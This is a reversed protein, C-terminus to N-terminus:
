APRRRVFAVFSGLFHGAAVFWIAALLGTVSSIAQAYLGFAMRFSCALLTIEDDVGHDPHLIPVALLMWLLSPIAVLWFVGAFWFATSNRDAPRLDDLEGVLRQPRSKLTHEPLLLGFLLNAPALLWGLALIVEAVQPFDCRAVFSAASPVAAVIPATVTQLLPLQDLIDAPLAQALGWVVFVQRWLWTRQARPWRSRARARLRELWGTM